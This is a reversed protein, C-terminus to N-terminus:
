DADGNCSDDDIWSHELTYTGWGGCNRGRSESIVTRTIKIPQPNNQLGHSYLTGGNNVRRNKNNRKREDDPRCSCGSCRNKGVGFSCENLEPDANPASKNNKLTSDTIENTGGYAYLVSGKANKNHEWDSGPQARNNAFTSMFAKFKGGYNYIAGGHEMARNWAFTSAVLTTKAADPPTTNTGNELKATYIAGGRNATNDRMSSHDITITGRNYIGGGMSSAKNESIKCFQANITGRNYIAGGNNAKGHELAIAWLSVNGAPAVKLLRNSHQGDLTIDPRRDGNIDGEIRLQKNINIESNLRIIKQFLWPAFTVRDGNTASTV